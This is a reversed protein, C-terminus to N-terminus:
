SFEQSERSQMCFRLYLLSKNHPHALARQVILERAGWDIDDLLLSILEGKRVGTVLFAYWIDAWHQRSRTLLRDVEDREFPTLGGAIAERLLEEAETFRGQRYLLEYVDLLAFHACYDM